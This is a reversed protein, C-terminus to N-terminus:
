RYVHHLVDDSYIPMGVSAEMVRELLVQNVEDAARANGHEQRQTKVFAAIAAQFEAPSVDGAQAADLEELFEYLNLPHRRKRRCCHLHL